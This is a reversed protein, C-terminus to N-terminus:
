LVTLEDPEKTLRVAGDPSVIVTDTIRAGGLGEEYAGAGLSLTMNNCLTDGSQLNIYPLERPSLGVGHGACHRYGEKFGSDALASRLRLETERCPTGTKAALRVEEAARSAAEYLSRGREDASGVFYTRSADTCYGKYMIGLNVVVMDGFALEKVSPAASPMAGRAGSAILPSFAMAEAGNTRLYLEARLALEKETIGPKILSRVYGMGRDTLEAAEGLVDLEGGDKVTRLSLMLDGAPILEEYRLNKRLSRYESVTFYGDEYIIRRVGEKILTDNISNYLGGNTNVIAFGQTEMAAQLAYRQEVFLTRSNETILVAGTEGTFGSLFFRNEKSAVLVGDGGRSNM